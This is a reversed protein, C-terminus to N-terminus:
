FNSNEKEIYYLCLDFCGFIGGRVPVGRFVSMLSAGGEDGRLYMLEGCEAM